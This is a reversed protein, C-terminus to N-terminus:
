VRDWDGFDEVFSNLSMLTVASHRAGQPATVEVYTREGRNEELSSRLTGAATVAQGPTMVAVVVQAPFYAYDMQVYFPCTILEPKLALLFARQATVNGKLQALDHHIIDKFFQIDHYPARGSLLRDPGKLRLWHKDCMSKHLPWDMRQCTKSCYKVTQCGQCVKLDTRSNCLTCTNKVSKNYREMIKNREKVLGLFESWATQIRGTMSEFAPTGVAHLTLGDLSEVAQRIVSRYCLFPMMAAFFRIAEDEVPAHSFLKICHLVAPLVGVHLVQRIWGFGNTVHIGETLLGFCIAGGEILQPHAPQTAIWELAAIVKKSASRLALCRNLEPDCSTSYGVLRLTISVQPQRVYEPSQLALGLHELLLKALIDRTEFQEIFTRIVTKGHLPWEPIRDLVTMIVSATPFIGSGACSTSEAEVTWIDALVSLIQTLERPSRLSNEMGPFTAVAETFSLIVDMMSFWPEGPKKTDTFGKIYRHLECLWICASPWMQLLSSLAAAEADPLGPVKQGVLLCEALGKFATDVLGIRKRDVGSSPQVQLHTLFLNMTSSSFAIDGEAIAQATLRLDDISGALGRSVIPRFESPFHDLDVALM